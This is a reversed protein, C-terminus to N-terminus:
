KVFYTSAKNIHIENIQNDKSFNSTNMNENVQFEDSKNEESDKEFLITKIKEFKTMHNNYKNKIKNYKKIVKEVKPKLYLIILDIETYLIKSLIVIM